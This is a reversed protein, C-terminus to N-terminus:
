SGIARTIQSTTTRACIAPLMLGRTREQLHPTCLYVQVKSAYKVCFNWKGIVTGDQLRKEKRFQGNDTQYRFYREPGEDTQIHYQNSDPSGWSANAGDLYVQRRPFLILFSVFSWIHFCFLGTLIDFSIHALSSPADDATQLM